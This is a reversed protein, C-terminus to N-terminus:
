SHEKLIWVSKIIRVLSGFMTSPAQVYHITSAALADALRQAAAFADNWTDHWMDCMYIDGHRPDGFSFYVIWKDNQEDLPEVTFRYPGEVAHWQNTPQKKWELPDSM